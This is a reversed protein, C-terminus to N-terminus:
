DGFRSEAVLLGVIPLDSEEGLLENLAQAGIILNSFLEDSLNFIEGDTTTVEFIPAPELEPSEGPRDMFLLGIGSLILLGIVAAQILPARPKASRIPDGADTESGKVETQDESSEETENEEPDSDLEHNEREDPDPDPGDDDLVEPSM